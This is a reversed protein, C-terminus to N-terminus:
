RGVIVYSWANLGGSAVAITETSTTLPNQWSPGSALGRTAPIM